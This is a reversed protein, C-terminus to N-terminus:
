PTSENAIQRTNRDIPWTRQTAKKWLPPSHRGCASAGVEGDARGSRARGLGQDPNVFDINLTHDTTMHYPHDYYVRTETIPIWGPTGKGSGTIESKQIVYTCM